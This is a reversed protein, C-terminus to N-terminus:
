LTTSALRETVAKSQGYLVIVAAIVRPRDADDLEEIAACIKQFSDLDKSKM